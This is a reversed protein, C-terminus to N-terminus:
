DAGTPKKNLGLVRLIVWLIGYSIVCWIAFSALVSGFMEGLWDGEQYYAMMQAFSNGTRSMDGLVVLIAGFVLAL